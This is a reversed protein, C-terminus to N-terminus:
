DEWALKPLAGNTLTWVAPSFGATGSWWAASNWQTSTIDAGHLSDHAGGTVVSGNVTMASNAYNHQKVVTDSAGQETGIVRNTVSLAEDHTTISESLAVCNRVTGFNHGAIGGGGGWPSFINIVGAFYCRSVIGSNNGVVGGKSSTLGSNTITVTSYCDEVTGGNNSGVVGGVNRSSSMMELSSVNGTSFSSKVTGGNMGAVAGNYGAVGGVNRNGAVSGKFSCNEVVGRANNGVIGGVGVFGWVSGSLVHCNTVTGRNEGAIGGVGDQHATIDVDALIVNKM